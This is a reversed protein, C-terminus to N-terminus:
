QSPRPSLHDIPVWGSDKDSTKECWIWGNLERMGIVIEGCDVELEKATYRQTCMGVEGNVQIIQVPVWGEQGRDLTYCYIWNPWNEPGAYSRGVIVEQGKALTIPNPYNSLHMKTVEFLM